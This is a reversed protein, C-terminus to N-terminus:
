VAGALVWVAGSLLYSGHNYRGDSIEAGGEALRKFPRPQSSRKRTIKTKPAIIRPTMMPPCSIEMMVQRAQRASLTRLPFKSMVHVGDKGAGCELSYGNTLKNDSEAVESHDSAGEAMTIPRRTMIHGMKVFPICDATQGTSQCGFCDL